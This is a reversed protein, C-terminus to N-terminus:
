DAGLYADLRDRWAPSLAPAAGPALEEAWAADFGEGSFEAPARVTLDALAAPLRRQRALMLLSLWCERPTGVCDWPKVAALGLLAELHQRNGPRELIDQGFVALAGAAGLHPTLVLAVFVCKACEGCWRQPRSAPDLRFNRNCSTFNAHQGTCRAFERAIRIEGLPRLLSAYRPWDGVHRHCWDQFAQEYRSSKSWQHNVARGQWVLNADDAGRENGVLVDGFGAARAVLMSIAAICASVPVHGNWAGAANLELLQPDIRRSIRHLVLGAAEASRAMWPSDGLALAAAPAGSSRVIEAVLGSDKGGGILVLAPRAPADRSGSTATSTPRPAATAPAIRTRGTATAFGPSAPVALGNRFYFEGLGEGYLMDWFGAEGAALGSVLLEPPLAAKYYSVGFSLHCARLLAAM